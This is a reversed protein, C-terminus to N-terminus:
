KTPWNGHSTSSIRIWVAQCMLKKDMNADWNMWRNLMNYNEDEKKTHKKKTMWLHKTWENKVSESPRLIMHLRVTRAITNHLHTNWHKMAIHNIVVSPIQNMENHYYYKPWYQLIGMVRNSSNRTKPRRVNEWDRFGYSEASICAICHLLILAFDTM